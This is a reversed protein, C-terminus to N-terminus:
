ATTTRTRATLCSKKLAGTGIPSTGNNMDDTHGEVGVLDGEAQEVDFPIAERTEKQKM